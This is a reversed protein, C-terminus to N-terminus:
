GPDIAYGRMLESPTADKGKAFRQLGTPTSGSKPGSGLYARVRWGQASHQLRTATSRPCGLDRLSSLVEGAGEATGAPSSIRVVARGTSFCRAITMAVASEREEMRFPPSPTRVNQARNTGRLRSLFVFSWHGICVTRLRRGHPFGEAELPREALPSTTCVWGRGPGSKETHDWTMMNRRPNGVVRVERLRYQPAHGSLLRLWERDM